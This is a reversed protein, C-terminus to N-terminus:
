ARVMVLERDDRRIGGTESDADDSTTVDLSGQCYGCLVDADWAGLWFRARWETSVDPSPGMANTWGQVIPSSRLAYDYRMRAGFYDAPGGEADIWRSLLAIREKLAVLAPGQGSALRDRLIRLREKWVTRLNDIGTVTAIEASVSPGGEVGSAFLEGYPFQPDNPVISRQLIAGDAACVQLHFPYIPEVGDDAIVGNRGEFKAEDLLTVVASRFPHDAIDAGQVSITRVRVGINPAGVRIFVPQQWNLIRDLDPEDAYAQVYGSVGRPEDHPDPDTPLRCQFWGSFQLSIM